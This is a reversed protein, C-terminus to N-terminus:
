ELARTHQDQRGPREWRSRGSNRRPGVSIPEVCAFPLTICLESLRRARNTLDDQVFPRWVPAPSRQRSGATSQREARSRAPADDLDDGTTQLRAHRGSPLSPRLPEVGRTPSDIAADRRSPGPMLRGQTCVQPLPTPTRGQVARARVRGAAAQAHVSSPLLLERPVRTDRAAM